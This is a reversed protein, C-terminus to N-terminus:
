EGVTVPILRSNITPPLWGNQISLRLYYHGEQEPAKFTWHITEPRDLKHDKLPLIGRQHVFAEEHFLCYVLSDPYLDNQGFVVPKPYTHSLTLLIRISEGPQAQYRIEPTNILVKVHSRFNSIRIAQVMGKSTSFTQIDPGSIEWNPVYFVTKGQLGPEIDWLDYQNRRYHVNNLSLATNGTYFSYKAAKQYSNSFAVPTNGTEVAIAKAWSKWGHLEPLLQSSAQPVFDTMLNLRFTLFFLCSVISLGRIWKKLRQHDTAYNYGLVLLPIFAVAMWNAEVPANLTSFLFFLSFGVLTFKLAKEVYDQARYRFAMYFLVGSVLPGAILLQGLIFNLTDMPKYPDQSKTLVHYQYSPYDNAIQWLIHPLYCLISLLVVVYFHRQRLLSWNSLLTFFLVLLGHYKSYLMGAIALSLLLMRLFSPQELYRKYSVFFAAAFFLLPVDPVAIFGYVQFVTVSGFLLFFLGFGRRNTLQYTILILVTTLLVTGIRVGLESQFISYGIKILVAIAPPHDFFGYDLNRSYMWYYAEDNALETTIAQLLNVIMWILILSITCHVTYKTYFRRATDFITMTNKIILDQGYVISTTPQLNSFM